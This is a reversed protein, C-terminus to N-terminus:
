ALPSLGCRVSVIDIKQSSRGGAYPGFGDWFISVASLCVTGSCAGEDYQYAVETWHMHVVLFCLTGEFIM